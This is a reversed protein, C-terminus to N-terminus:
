ETSSSWFSGAPFPKITHSLCVSVLAKAESAFGYNGNADQGMFIPRVGIPDRGIYTEGKGEDHLIFAFVEDLQDIFNEVSGFKEYLHIIIECDSGSEFQFGYKDKLARFNYIEGNCIVSVKGKQLPQDGAESTDVIRLRQFGLILKDSIKKLQM